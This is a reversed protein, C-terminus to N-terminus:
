TPPHTGSISIGKEVLIASVRNAAGEITGRQPSTGAVATPDSVTASRDGPIVFM